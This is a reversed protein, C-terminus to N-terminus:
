LGVLGLSSNAPLQPFCAEQCLPLLLGSYQLAKSLKAKNYLVGPLCIPGARGKIGPVFHHGLSLWLFVPLPIGVLESMEVGVGGMRHWMGWRGARRGIEKM